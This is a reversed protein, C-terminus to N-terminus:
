RRFHTCHFVLSLLSGLWALISLFLSLCSCLTSLVGPCLTGHEKYVCVAVVVGIKPYSSGTSSNPPELELKESWDILIVLRSGSAARGAEAVIRNRSQLQHYEAFWHPTWAKMQQCLYTRLVSGAVTVEVLADVKAVKKRLPPLEGVELRGETKRQLYELYKQASGLVRCTLKEDMAQM